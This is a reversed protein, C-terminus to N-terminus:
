LAFLTIVGFQPLEQLSVAPTEGEEEESCGGPAEAPNRYEVKDDCLPGKSHTKKKGALM